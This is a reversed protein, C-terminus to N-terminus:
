GGWDTVTIVYRSQEDTYFTFTVTRNSFDVSCGISSGHFNYSSPKAIGRKAALAWFQGQLSRDSCFLENLRQPTIGVSRTRNVGYLTLLGLIPVMIVIVAIVAFRRGFRTSREVPKQLIEAGDVDKTSPAAKIDSQISTKASAVLMQEEEKRRREEQRAKEEAERTAAADRERRQREAEATAAERAREEAEDAIKRRREEEQHRREEEARLGADDDALRKAEAEKWEAERTAAADRERRQREAEATAAARQEQAERKTELERAQQERAERDRQEREKEENRLRKEERETVPAILAFRSLPPAGFSRWTEDYTQLGRYSPIPDRGVRRAIENLLRDLLHSRPAGDWITLDISDVRAFGLPPDVRELWAPTLTGLRTALDAEELVWRSERSLSCWLVVVAKAARIEREIQPGFDAGSFLGYDFWVSYGNLELIQTLHQAANRRESKYSIFVDAM